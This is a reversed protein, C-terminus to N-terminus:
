SRVWFRQEINVRVSYQNTGTDITLKTMWTGGRDRRVAAHRFVDESSIRAILGATQKRAARAVIEARPSEAM